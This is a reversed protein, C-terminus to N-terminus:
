RHMGRYVHAACGGSCQGRKRHRCSMCERLAGTRYLRTFRKKFYDRVQRINDFDTMYLNRTLQSLPFCAWLSLDTGVDIAPGCTARFRTGSLIFKGIDEANFMCLTFGCDFGLQISTEDCLDNLKMLSPVISSYEAVDVYENPLDSLPQAIGLRIHRKTRYRNIMDVLFGPDFESRSINFSITAYRGLSEFLRAQMKQHNSSTTSPSNVNVVLQLRPKDKSDRIAKQLTEIKNESWLGNTFVKTVIRKSWGYRLLDVFDPHLSPEGGLVGVQPQKSRAAFDIATHFNEESIFEPVGGSTENELDYRVREQAFCYACKRNCTNTLLINM